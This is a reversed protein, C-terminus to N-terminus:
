KGRRTFVTEHNKEEESQPVWMRLTYVGGKRQLKIRKGTTRNRIEGGDQELSLVNGAKTLQSVALLTKEINAVQLRM